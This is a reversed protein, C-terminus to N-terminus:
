EKWNWENAVALIERYLDIMYKPEYGRQLIYRV